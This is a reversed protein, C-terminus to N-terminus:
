AHDSICTCQYTDAAGSLNTVILRVEKTLYNWTFRPQSWSKTEQTDAFRRHAFQVWGSLDSGNVTGLQLLVSGGNKSSIEVTFGKTTGFTPYDINFDQDLSAGAALDFPFNVRFGM